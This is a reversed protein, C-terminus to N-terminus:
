LRMEQMTDRAHNHFRTNIISYYDENSVSCLMNFYSKTYIYNGLANLRPDPKPRVSAQFNVLIKKCVRDDPVLLSM